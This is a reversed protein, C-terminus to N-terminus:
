DLVSIENGILQFRGEYEQVTGEVEILDGEQLETLNSKKFIVVERTNPEMIKIIAIKDFETIASIVGKVKVTTDIDLQDLKDLTTTDVKINESIFFLIILGIVSSILAIKLLLNEKM